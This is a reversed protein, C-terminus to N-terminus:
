RGTLGGQKYHTKRFRDYPVGDALLLDARNCSMRGPSLGAIAWGKLAPPVFERVQKERRDIQSFGVSM